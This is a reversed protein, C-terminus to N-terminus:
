DFGMKFKVNLNNQAIFKEVAVQHNRWVDVSCLLTRLNKNRTLIDAIGDSTIATYLLNLYKLNCPIAFIELVSIFGFGDFNMTLTHLSQCVTFFQILSVNCCSNEYHQYDITLEVIQRNNWTLTDILASNFPYIHQQLIIRTFNTTEQFFHVLSHNQDVTHQFDNRMTLSKMPATGDSKTTLTTNNTDNLYSLVNLYFEFTDDFLEFKWLNKCTKILLIVTDYSTSECLINLSLDNILLCHATITALAEASCEWCLEIKTLNNNKRLLNCFADSTFMRGYLSRFEILNTCHQALHNIHTDQVNRCNELLLVNLQSLIKSKIELFFTFNLRNDDEIHLKALLECSNILDAMHSDTFTDDNNVIVHVARVKKTNLDFLNPVADFSLFSLESMKIERLILWKFCDLSFYYSDNVTSFACIPSSMLSLLTQRYKKNCFSSDLIAVDNVSCWNGIIECSLSDPLARILSMAKNQHGDGGEAQFRSEM